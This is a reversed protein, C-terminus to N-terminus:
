QFDSLGLKLQSVPVEHLTQHHYRYSVNSVSSDWCARCDGCHGDNLHANCAQGFPELHAHTTATLGFGPLPAQDIMPSSVRIILNDPIAGTYSRLRRRGFGKRLAGYVFLDANLVQGGSGNYARCDPPTMGIRMVAVM